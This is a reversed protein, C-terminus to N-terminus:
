SLLAISNPEAHNKNTSVYDCFISVSVFVAYLVSHNKKDPETARCITVNTDKTDLDRLKSDLDRTQVCFGSEFSM